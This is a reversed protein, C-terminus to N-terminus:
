NEPFDQNLWCELIQIEEETLGEKQVLGPYTTLKPPMLLPNDDATNLVRARFSGGELSPLVGGYSNYNGPGIGAGDHCGSYACSEDIIAKVTIDYTPMLTDCAESVTPAPLEDNTCSATLLLFQIALFAIGLILFPTRNKKMM